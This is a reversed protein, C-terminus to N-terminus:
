FAYSLGVLPVVRAVLGGNDVRTTVNGTLLLERTLRVKAGAAVADNSYDGVFPRIDPVNPLVTGAIDTYAGLAVRQADLVREGILDAAITFRDVVRVDVGGSYIIAAPLSAKAPGAGTPD